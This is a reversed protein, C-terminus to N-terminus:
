EHPQQQVPSAAATASGLRVRKNAETSAEELRTRKTKTSGATANTASNATGAASDAALKASVQETASDSRPRTEPPKSLNTNISNKKNSDLFSRKRHNSPKTSSTGSVTPVAKPKKTASGMTRVLNPRPLAAAPPAVHSTPLSSTVGSNLNVNMTAAGHELLRAKALRQSLTQLVQWVSKAPHKRCLEEMARSVQLAQQAQEFSM